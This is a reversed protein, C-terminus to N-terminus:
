PAMRGNENWLRHTVPWYRAFIEELQRAANDIEWLPNSPRKSDEEKTRLELFTMISRPNATCYCASFIGVGLVDRALGRDVQLSLMYEYQQYADKYGQTLSARILEYEQDTAVDFAPRASKFGEPRIMPRDKPPIWFFPDLQKYRGSEENYSWAIRHRHWERWVKIPANVLVTLSGHEFPTGHRNKLMHGLVGEVREKTIPKGDSTRTVGPRVVWAARALMEDTGVHQVYEVDITSKLIIETM